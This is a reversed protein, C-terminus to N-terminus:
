YADDDSSEYGCRIFYKRAIRLAREEDDFGDFRITEGLDHAGLAETDLQAPKPGYVSITYGKPAFPNHNLSFAFWADKSQRVVGSGNESYAICDAPLESEFYQLTAIIDASLM